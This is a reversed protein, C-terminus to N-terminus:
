SLVAYQAAIKSYITSGKIVVNVKWGNELQALTLEIVITSEKTPDLIALYKCSNMESLIISQNVHQAILQKVMELQVVGPTVPMNPFHGQFLPHQENITVQFEVKGEEDENKSDVTYFNQLISM